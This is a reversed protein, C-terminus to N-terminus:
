SQMKQRSYVLASCQVQSSLVIEGAVDCQYYNMNATSVNNNYMWGNELVCIRNLTM